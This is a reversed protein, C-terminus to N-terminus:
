RTEADPDFFPVCNMQLDAELKHVEAYNMQLDAKLKHVEACNM